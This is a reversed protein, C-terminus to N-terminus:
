PLVGAIEKHHERRHDDNGSREGAFPEVAGSWIRQHVRSYQQKSRPHDGQAESIGGSDEECAGSHQSQAETCRERAKLRYRDLGCREMSSSQSCSRIEQQEVESISKARVHQSNHSVTGIIMRHIKYCSQDNSAGRCQVINQMVTLLDNRRCQRFLLNWSLHM